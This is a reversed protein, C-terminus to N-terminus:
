KTPKRNGNRTVRLVYDQDAHRILIVNRAGFLAESDYRRTAAGPERSADDPTSRAAPVHNPVANM